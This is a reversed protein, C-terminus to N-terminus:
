FPPSSPRCSSDEPEAALGGEARTDDSSASCEQQYDYRLSVSFGGVNNQYHHDNVDLFVRSGRRLGQVQFSGAHPVVVAAGSNVKYYFRGHNDFALPDESCDPQQPCVEFASIGEPGVVAGELFCIGNDWCLTGGVELTAAGVIREDITWEKPTNGATGLSGTTLTRTALGCPTATPTRTATPTPSPLSDVATVTLSWGGAIQGSDGAADDIVFLRWAGNPNQGNFASLTTARPPAPAPAPFPDGDGGDWNLPKYSEGSRVDRSM